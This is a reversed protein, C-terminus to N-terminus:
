LHGCKFFIDLGTGRSEPDNLTKDLVFFRFHGPAISCVPRNITLSIFYYASQGAFTIVCLVM